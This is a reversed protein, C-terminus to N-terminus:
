RFRYRVIVVGSGGTGATFAPRTGGGGGGTNPTGPTGNADSGGSGGGGQGGAGPTFGSGVGGGGGGGYYRPTGDIAVLIGDGGRGAQTESAPPSGPTGAGGGGSAPNGQESSTNSDGGENGQGVTGDGGLLAPGSVWAGAGGGSGGANGANNTAGGHGGGIAIFDGAFSSAEGNANVAGGDGVTISYTGPFYVRAGPQQHIVGGGGGGGGQSSGGGGGGAVVLIELWGSGSTIQFTGSTTFRHVMFDGDMSVTGGTAAIYGVCDGDTCTAECVVDCGGCHAESIDTDVCEDGCMTLACVPGADMGADVEPMGADQEPMGADREPMGADLGGDVGGDLVTPTTCGALWLATLVLYGLSRMISLRSLFFAERRM